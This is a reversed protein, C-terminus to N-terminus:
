KAAPASSEIPFAKDWAAELAEEDITGAVFELVAAAIARGHRNAYTKTKLFTKVQAMTHPIVVTVPAAEPTAAAKKKASAARKERVAKVTVKKGDGRIKKFTEAQEESPMKALENAAAVPTEGADVSALVVAPLALLKLLERAWQETMKLRMAVDPLGLGYDETLQRIAFATQAPRPDERLNNECLNALAAEGDSMDSVVYKLKFDPCLGSEILYMGARTRRFGGVVEVKRDHMRRCLVPAMQGSSGDPSEGSGTRPIMDKALAILADDVIPEQGGRSINKKWDVVLALPSVSYYDSRANKHGGTDPTFAMTTDETRKERRTTRRKKEGCGYKLLFSEPHM